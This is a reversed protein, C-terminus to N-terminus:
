SRARRVYLLLAGLLAGALLPGVVHALSVHFVEDASCTLHVAGSGFAVMAAGGIGLALLPRYAFAGLIFALLAIAPLFGAATAIGFCSLSSRLWMADVPGVANGQLVMAVATPIWVVLSLALAGLGVHLLRQRGPVSAGLAALVGGVAFVALGVLVATYPAGAELAGVDPRLGLYAVWLGAVLAGGALLGASVIRLRPIRRVRGASRALQGAFQETEQSM